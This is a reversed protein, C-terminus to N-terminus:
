DENETREQIMQYLDAAADTAHSYYYSIEYWEDSYKEREELVQKLYLVADMYEQLADTLADRGNNAQLPYGYKFEGQSARRIFASKLSEPYDKLDDLVLNIIAPGTGKQPYGQRATSADEPSISM